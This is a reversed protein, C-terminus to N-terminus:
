FFHWPASTRIKKLAAQIYGYSTKKYWLISYQAQIYHITTIASYHMSYIFSPPLRLMSYQVVYMPSYGLTQEVFVWFLGSSVTLGYRLLCSTVSCCTYCARFTLSKFPQFCCRSALKWLQVLWVNIHRCKKPTIWWLCGSLLHYPKTNLLSLLLRCKISVPLM